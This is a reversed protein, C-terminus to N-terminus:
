SIHEYLNNTVNIFVFVRMVISGVRSPASDLSSQSSVSPTRQLRPPFSKSQHQLYTHLPSPSIELLGRLQDANMTNPSVSSSTQIAHCENM